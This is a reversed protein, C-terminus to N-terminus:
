TPAMERGIAMERGMAVIDGLGATAEYKELVSWDSGGGGHTQARKLEGSFFYVQKAIRDYGKLACSEGIGDSRRIALLRAGSGPWHGSPLLIVEKYRSPSM